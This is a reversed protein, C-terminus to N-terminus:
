QIYFSAGNRRKKRTCYKTAKNLGKWYFTKISRLVKKLVVDKRKLLGTQVPRRGVRRSLQKEEENSIPGSIIALVDKVRNESLVDKIANDKRNDMMECKKETTIYQDNGFLFENEVNNSCHLKEQIGSEKGFDNMQEVCQSTLWNQYIENEFSIVDKFHFGSDEYPM